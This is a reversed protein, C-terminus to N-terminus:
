RFLENWIGFKAIGSKKLASKKVKQSFIPVTPRGVTGSTAGTGSKKEHKTWM